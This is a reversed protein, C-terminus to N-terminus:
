FNFFSNILEEYNGKIVIHHNGIPNNIFYNISKELKLEIQTRCLTNLSMNNIIKANSVFYESCNSSVRFITAEGKDIEGSIAVGTNSEFHTDLTYHNVMNLPLTCHALYISNNDFNLQSPNCLFCPEGTLEGAIAMTILAPMDGECGAYIGEANLIALAICGTGCTPNLLDFCRVTIARLDYKEVIRKIAGYIYLANEKEALDFNHKLFDDTYKNKSYTKKSYEDFFEDMNIDIIDIGFTNKAKDKYVNSAILWDSSMGLQGFRMNKLSDKTKIAALYNNLENIANNKDSIYIIKGVRDNQKLYALIEISAALSNNTNACLILWEHASSENFLELFKGETGGTAIYVIPHECFKIEDFKCLELNESLADCIDKLQMISYEKENSYTLPSEIYFIKM